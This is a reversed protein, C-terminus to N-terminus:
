TNKDKTKLYKLRPIYILVSVMTTILATWILGDRVHIAWAPQPFRMMTLVVVAIAISQLVMKLKGAWTASFEQGLYESFSRGVTVIVERVLIVIVMWWAIGTIDHGIIALLIFAGAVLVKDVLPDLSRGFQSAVKLRRALVGDALDTLAAIVFLAFAWQLKRLAAHPLQGQRLMQYDVLALLVMFGAALFLRSMTLINPLSRLLPSM